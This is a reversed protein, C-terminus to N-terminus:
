LINYSAIPTTALTAIEANAAAAIDTINRSSQYGMYGALMVPVASTLLLIILLKSSIRIKM